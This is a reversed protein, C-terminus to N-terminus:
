EEKDVTPSTSGKIVVDKSKGTWGMREIPSPKDKPPEIPKGHVDLLQKREEDTM